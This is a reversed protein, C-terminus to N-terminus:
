GRAAPAARYVGVFYMAYRVLVYVVMAAAFVTEAAVLADFISPVAWGAARLAALEKGLAVATIVFPFTMAAYSPYFRLRLFRPLYALVVVFLVQALLALVLSFVIDPHDYVTLYGTLSLSMPAAYICFLPRAPEAVEHKAYRLSVVVFLAVYCAFGFVFLARGIHQMGFAPSTVAGVVIGVYCIFYTPYVNALDFSAIFVATFWCILVAHAVIAAIWLALAPVYAYPALYTALQMLAMFFTGSVSAFIPNRFDELMVGSFCVSKVALMGILVAAVLGCAAHVAGGGPQLLNGLAAVGLALGAAPIPTKEILRKVAIGGQRVDVTAAGPPARNACAMRRCAVPGTEARNCRILKGAKM